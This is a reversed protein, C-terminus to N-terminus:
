IGVPRGYAPPPGARQDLPIDNGYPQSSYASQFNRAAPTEYVERHRRRRMQLFYAGALILFVVAIVIGYGINHRSASALNFGSIDSTLSTRNYFHSLSLGLAAGIVLVIIGITQTIWHWRIKRMTRLYLAGVPLIVVFTGAMAIGHLGSAYEHDNHPRGNETANSTRSTDPPWPLNDGTATQMNIRFSGWYDHRRLGANRSDSNLNLDDPGVAYIMPQSTSNFDITGRDWQQCNHCIGTVRYRGDSIDTPPLLEPSWNVPSRYESPEVHGTAVRPSLTVNKGSKNTYVIFMFANKM